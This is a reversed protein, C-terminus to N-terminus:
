SFIEDLNRLLYVKNKVEELKIDKKYQEPNMLINNILDIDREISKSLKIINGFYQEINRCGLYIPTTGNLLPNIIKESFYHNSEVNEICIHFLYDKYPELEEFQGMLRSDEQTNYFQCGRGYIDVPLGRKLIERTLYHRYMHGFTKGKESIMISMMKNKLPITKCPTCYWMYSFNEVFPDPLGQNDGIFYKGINDKAYNLFEQTLGLFLRPEFALGIVNNKDIHKPISPMATNLILVHSYNDGTTIEINKGQGFDDMDVTECLRILIKECENPNGFSSFFRIKYNM